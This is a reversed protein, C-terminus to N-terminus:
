VVVCCKWNECSFVPKLGWMTKIQLSHFSRLKHKISASHAWRVGCGFWRSHWYHAPFQLEREYPLSVCRWTSSVQLASDRQRQPEDQGVARQWVGGQGGGGSPGRWGRLRLVGQLHGPPLPPTLSRYSVSLRHADVSGTHSVSGDNPNITDYTKGNEADEFQGNIFCQYPMKVTMNNVDKSVQACVPVHFPNLFLLLLGDSWVGTHHNSQCAM